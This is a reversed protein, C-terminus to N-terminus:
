AAPTAAPKEIAAQVTAFSDYVISGADLSDQYSHLRMEAVVTVLNKRFDDNEWGYELRLNEYIRLNWRRTDMLLFKGAPIDTTDVITIYRILAFLEQSIYRGTNDKTLDILARDAPNIFVANHYLGLMQAQLAAAHIADAYNPHEVKDTM